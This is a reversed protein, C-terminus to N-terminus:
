DVERRLSSCDHGNMRAPGYFLRQEAGYDPVRVQRDGLEEFQESGARPECRQRRYLLRIM